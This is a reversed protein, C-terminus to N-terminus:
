DRADLVQQRLAKLDGTAVQAAKRVRVGASKNGRDTKDADTVADQLNAIIQELSQKVSM